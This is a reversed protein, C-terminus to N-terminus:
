KSLFSACKKCKSFGALELVYTTASASSENSKYYFNMLGEIINIKNEIYEKTSIDIKEELDKKSPSKFRYYGHLNKNNKNENLIELCRNFSLHIFIQLETLNMSKIDYAGSNPLNFEKFSNLNIDFIKNILHIFSIDQIEIRRRQPLCFDIFKRIEEPGREKIEEPIEYNIYDSNLLECDKDLHYRPNSHSSFILKRNKYNGIDKIDYHSPLDSKEAILKFNYLENADKLSLVGSLDTDFIYNFVKEGSISGTPHIISRTLRKANAFTIYAKQHEMKLDLQTNGVIAQVIACAM